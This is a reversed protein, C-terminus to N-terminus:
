KTLMPTKNTLILISIEKATAIVEIMIIIGSPFNSNSILDVCSPFSVFGQWQLSLISLEKVNFLDRKMWVIISFCSIKVKSNHFGFNNSKRVVDIWDTKWPLFL